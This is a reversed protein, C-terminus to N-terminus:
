TEDDDALAHRRSAEEWTLTFQRYPRDNADDLVRALEARTNRRAAEAAETARWEVVEDPTADLLVFSDSVSSFVALRGDPQRIIQEAM